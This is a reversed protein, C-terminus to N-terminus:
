LRSDFYTPNLSLISGLCPHVEVQFPKVPAHEGDIAVYANKGPKV